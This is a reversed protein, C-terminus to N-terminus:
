DQLSPYFLNMQKQFKIPEDIFLGLVKFKKRIGYLGKLENEHKLYIILNHSELEGFPTLKKTLPDKKLPKRSLEIHDIESIPIEVENLIGYNLILSDQNISIPRKSLSKAFGFVQIATYCSLATLIWAAIQSWQSFLIHLAVTEIGILLIIGGLLAPTGSKKHYTFENDKTSISKWHIFGYYFVAIETAFPIVLFKPLFSYSAIKVSKFFDPTNNKLNKHLKIATRVKLIIAALISIEIVPLVWTKFHTLYTQSEEPLFFSGILLGIIMVPVVTSNPTKSKRILLFYIIPVSILLDITVALSLAENDKLINTEMLCILSALMGIPAGFNILNRNFAIPRNM